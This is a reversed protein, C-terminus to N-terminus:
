DESSMQSRVTESIVPWVKQIYVVMALGSNLNVNM